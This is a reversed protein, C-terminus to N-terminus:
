CHELSLGVYWVRHMFYSVLSTHFGGAVVALVTDLAKTRFSERSAQRIVTELGLVFDSMVKDIADLGALVEILDTNPNPYKKTFIACLFATLNKIIYTLAHKNTELFL